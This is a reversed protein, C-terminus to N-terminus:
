SNEHLFENSSIIEMTAVIIKIKLLNMELIKNKLGASNKIV